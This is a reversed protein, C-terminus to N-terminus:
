LTLDRMQEITLDRIEAVQGDSTNDTSYLVVVEDWMDYIHYYWGTTYYSKKIEELAVAKAEEESHYCGIRDELGGLPYYQAYVFLWYRKWKMM